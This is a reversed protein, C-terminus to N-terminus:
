VLGFVVTTSQNFPTMIGFQQYTYLIDPVIMYLFMYVRIRHMHNYICIYMYIYICIYIYVYIIHTVICIEYM